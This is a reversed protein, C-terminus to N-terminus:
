RNRFKNERPCFSRGSSRRASLACADVEVTQNQGGRSFKLEVKQGPETKEELLKTFADSDAIPQGAFELLMDGPQLGAIAAPTGPGVVNVQVGGAADQLDLHGLYGGRMELDRYKSSSLEVSEIAAGENTAIVLLRYPNKSEDPDASGLTFRELEAEPEAPAVGEAVQGARAAPQDAAVVPKEAPQENNGANANGADAAPKEQDAKKGDVENQNQQAAQKAPQQKGMWLTYVATYGIFILM